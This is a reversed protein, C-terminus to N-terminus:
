DEQRKRIEISVLRCRDTNCLQSGRTRVVWAGVSGRRIMVFHLHHEGIPVSSHKVQDDAYWDGM